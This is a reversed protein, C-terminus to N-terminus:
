PPLWIRSESLRRNVPSRLISIIQETSRRTSPHSASLADLANRATQLAERYRGQAVLAISRLHLSCGVLGIRGLEMFLVEARSSASMAELPAGAALSTRTAALQLQAEIDAQGPLASESALALMEKAQGADGNSSLAAAFSLYFLAKTRSRSVNKCADVLSRMLDIALTKAGNLRYFTGLYVAINLAQLIFGSSLSIDYCARLESEANRPDQDSFHSAAAALVRVDLELLHNRRSMESVRQRAENAIDWAQKFCGSFSYAVSLATLVRSLVELARDHQTGGLLARLRSRSRRLVQAAAEPRGHQLAIEGLISDAECRALSDAGDAFTSSLARDAYSRASSGDGQELALRTLACYTSVRDPPNDTKSALDLLVDTAADLQGVQELMRAQSWRIQWSDSMELRVPASKARCLALRQAVASFARARDRYVQRESIGLSVAVDSITKGEFETRELALRVRPPLESLASHILEAALPTLATHVTALDTTSVYCSLAPDDSFRHLGSVQHLLERISQLEKSPLRSGLASM